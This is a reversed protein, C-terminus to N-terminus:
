TYKELPISEIEDSGDLFEIEKELESYPVLLDSIM